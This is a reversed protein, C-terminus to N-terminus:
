IAFAFRNRHCSFYKLFALYFYLCKLFYHSILFLAINFVSSNPNLSAEAAVRKLVAIMM